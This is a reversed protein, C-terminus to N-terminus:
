NRSRQARHLYCNSEYKAELVKKKKAIIYQKIGKKTNPFKIKM